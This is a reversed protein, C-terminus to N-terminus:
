GRKEENRESGIAKNGITGRSRTRPLLGGEERCLAQGNHVLGKDRIWSSVRPRSLSPIRSAFSSHSYLNLIRSIKM